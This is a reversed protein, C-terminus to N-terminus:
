ETVVTAHEGRKVKGAAKQKAQEEIESDIGTALNYFEDESLLKLNGNGDGFLRSGSKEKRGNRLIDKFKQLMTTTQLGSM